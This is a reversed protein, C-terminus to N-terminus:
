GKATVVILAIGGIASAIGIVVFLVLGNKGYSFSGLKIEGGDAITILGRIGIVLLVLALLLLGISGLIGLVPSM